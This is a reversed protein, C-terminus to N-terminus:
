LGNQFPLVFPNPRAMRELTKDIQINQKVQQVAERNVIQQRLEETATWRRQDEERNNILIVKPSGIGREYPCILGPGSMKKSPDYNPGLPRAVCNICVSSDPSMYMVCQDGM